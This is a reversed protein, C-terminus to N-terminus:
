AGRLLVADQGVEARIRRQSDAGAHTRRFGSPRRNRGFDRSTCRCVPRARQQAGLASIDPAGIKERFGVHGHWASRADSAGREYPRIDLHQTHKTRASHGIRSRGAHGIARVRDAHDSRGSQTSRAAANGADSEGNPTRHRARVSRPDDVRQGGPHRLRSPFEEDNAPWGPSYCM